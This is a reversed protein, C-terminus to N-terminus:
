QVPPSPPSIDPRSETKECSTPRKAAQEAIDWAAALLRDREERGSLDYRAWALAEKKRGTITLLAKHATEIAEPLGPGALDGWRLDFPSPGFSVTELPATWQDKNDFTLVTETLMGGAGPATTASSSISDPSGIGNRTAENYYVTLEPTGDPWAAHHKKSAQRPPPWSVFRGVITGDTQVFFGVDVQSSKAGSISASCYWQDTAAPADAAAALSAALLLGLMQWGELPGFFM